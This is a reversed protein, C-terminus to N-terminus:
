PNKNTTKGRKYILGKGYSEKKRTLCLAYFGSRTFIQTAQFVAPNKRKWQKSEFISLNCARLM